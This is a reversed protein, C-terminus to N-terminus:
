PKPPGLPNNGTPPGTVGTERGMDLMMQFDEDIPFDLWDPDNRDGLFYMGAIM